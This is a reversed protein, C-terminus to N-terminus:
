AAFHFSLRQLVGLMTEAYMSGSWTNSKRVGRVEFLRILHTLINITTPLVAGQCAHLVIVCIVTHAQCLDIFRTTVYGAGFLALQARVYARLNEVVKGFANDNM